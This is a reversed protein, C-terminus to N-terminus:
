ANLLIFFTKLLIIIFSNTYIHTGARAYSRCISQALKHIHLLSLIFCFSICLSFFFQVIKRGSSKIFYVGYLVCYLINTNTHTIRAPGCNGVCEIRVHVCVRKDNTYLFCIESIVIRCWNRASFYISLAWMSTYIPKKEVREWELNCLLYIYYLRAQPLGLIRSKERYLNQHMPQNDCMYNRNSLWSFDLAAHQVIAILHKWRPEFIIAIASFYILMICRM